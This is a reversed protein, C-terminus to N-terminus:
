LYFIVVAEIFKGLLQDHSRQECTIMDSSLLNPLSYVYLLPSDAAVIVHNESAFIACHINDQISMM